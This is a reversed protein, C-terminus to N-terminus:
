KVRRSAAGFQEVVADGYGEDAMALWKAALDLWGRRTEASRASEAMRKCYEAKHVYEARNNV